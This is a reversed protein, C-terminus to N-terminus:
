AVSVALWGRECGRSGGVPSAAARARDSVQVGGSVVNSLSERGSRDESCPRESALARRSEPTRLSVAFRHGQLSRGDASPLVPCQRGLPYRLPVWPFGRRGRASNTSGVPKGRGRGQHPWAEMM